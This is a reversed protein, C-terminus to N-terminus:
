NVQRFPADIAYRMWGDKAGSTDAIACRARRRAIIYDIFHQEQEAFALMLAHARAEYHDSAMM